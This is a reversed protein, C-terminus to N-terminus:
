LGSRSVDTAMSSIVEGLRDIKKRYREGTWAYSGRPLFDEDNKRPDNITDYFNELNWFGIAAYQQRGAAAQEQGRAEIVAILICAILIIKIRMMPAEFMCRRIFFEDVGPIGGDLKQRVRELLM